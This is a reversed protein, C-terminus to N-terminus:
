AVGFAKEDADEIACYTGSVQLSSDVCDIVDDDSLKALIEDISIGYTEVVFHVLDIRCGPYCEFGTYNRIREQAQYSM